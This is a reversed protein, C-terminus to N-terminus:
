SDSQMRAVLDLMESIKKNTFSNNYPRVSRHIKERLSNENGNLFALVYHVYEKPIHNQLYFYRDKRGQSDDDFEPVSKSYEVVENYLNTHLSEITTKLEEVTERFEEPLDKVYEEPVTFTKVDIERWFHLPTINSMKRHVNFYAEGKLKFKYGNKFTIVFGEENVTLKERASYIDEFKEFTFAKVVECGIKESESVLYDYWFEKQSQTDIIGILMLSEKDGYDVVIRNSPYIIEFLYTHNIDMKDTDINKHLYASAWLAQESVFSGRTKVYWKGKYFFVIGCSGDIKDLIMSEGEYNPHYENPIRDLMLTSREDDSELEEKNFFKRFPFAILEGTHEDFVIGRSNITIEDWDMAYTTTKNYDFSVLGDLRHATLNDRELFNHLNFKKM